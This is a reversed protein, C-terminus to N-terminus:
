TLANFYDRPLYVVSKGNGFNEEIFKKEGIHFYVAVERLTLM